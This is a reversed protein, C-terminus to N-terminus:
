KSALNNLFIVLKAKDTKNLSKFLVHRAEMDGVDYQKARQQLCAIMLDDFCRSGYNGPQVSWLVLEWEDDTFSFTITKNVVDTVSTAM